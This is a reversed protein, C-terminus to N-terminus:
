AEESLTQEAYDRRRKSLRQVVSGYGGPVVVISDTAKESAAEIDVDGEVGLSCLFM